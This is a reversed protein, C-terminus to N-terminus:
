WLNGVGTSYMPATVATKANLTTCTVTGDFTASAAHVNLATANIEVTANATVEVAGGPTFRISHGSSHTLLVSSESDDLVLKHGSAMSVSVKLAGQTDDFELVSGSRTKLIRINNDNTQEIPQTEQGNWCSGIVYPRRLNGAEFTVVVQSDVEPITFLGQDKDAYPSVLTAWARVTNEGDTGLWPFRVEVRGLSEPDELDTVIAPYVGHYVQTGGDQTFANIM